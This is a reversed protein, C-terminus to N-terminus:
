HRETTSRQRGNQQQAGPKRKRAELREEQSGQKEIIIMIKMVRYFCYKFDVTIDVVISELDLM